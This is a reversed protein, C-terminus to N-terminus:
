HVTQVPKEDLPEADTWYKDDCKPCPMLQQEALANELSSRSACTSPSCPNQCRSNTQHGALRLYGFLAGAAPGNKFYVPVANTGGHIYVVTPPLSTLNNDSIVMPATNQLITGGYFPVDVEAFVNFFSEAPFDAGLAEVEGPSIFPVGAGTGARVAIGFGCGDVMNLKYLETHVERNGAPGSTFQPPGPVFAFNGDSIITGATGVPTGNLDPISGHTHVASRGIITNGDYLVPSTWHNPQPFGWGPYGSVLPRFTPHVWIIAQGLSATVDDAPGPPFPQATALSPLVLLAALAVLLTLKVRNM